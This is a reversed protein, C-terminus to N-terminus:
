AARKNKKRHFLDRIYGDGPEDGEWPTQTPSRLLIDAYALYHRVYGQEDARLAPDVEDIIQEEQEKALGPLHYGNHHRKFPVLKTSDLHNVMARM